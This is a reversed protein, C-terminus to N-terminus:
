AHLHFAQTSVARTSVAHSSTRRVPTESLVSAVLEPYSLGAARAVRAVISDRHIPPLAEVELVVENHRASSLLDVRLVGRELGLAGCARRALNEIGARQIDDIDAPCVMQSTRPGDPGFSREVEAVGLVRGGLLVVSFERGEIARELLLDGDEDKMVRAIEEPEALRRVGHGLCGRRPKVVCPSGLRALGRSDRSERDPGLALTRPIPLNHNALQRRALLKDYSLAIALGDPGVVPLGCARALAHIKGSGAICGQGLVLVRDAHGLRRRLLDASAQADASDPLGVLEVVFGLARAAERVDAVTRLQADLWYPAAPQARNPGTSARTAELSSGVPVILGLTLAGM